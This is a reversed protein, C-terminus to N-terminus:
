KGLCGTHGKPVIQGWYYIEQQRTSSYLKFPIYTIGVTNASPIMRLTVHTTDGELTTGVLEIKAASSDSAATVIREDAGIETIDVVFEPNVGQEIRGFSHRYDTLKLKPLPMTTEHRVFIDILPCDARDTEIIWYRPAKGPEFDREFDWELLYQNRPADTAPDFGVLHPPKGGVACVTFPQKDISEIVTRGTLPQGKVVNLYAPTIRVPLSVENRLHVNLVQSYGDVLIKIEAKKTGPSSQAKMAAKLEIFGGPPIKQGSIDEGLTTCKCSPQVTLIELEKQSTNILKVIGERTVSPPIIGFDMVEPELRIPPLADIAEDVSPATETGPAVAPPTARAAALSAATAVPPQIASGAVGAVPAAAAPPTVAPSVAPAPAPPPASVTVTGTSGGDCAVLFAASAIAACLAARRSLRALTSPSHLM